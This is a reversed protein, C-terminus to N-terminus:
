ETTVSQAIRDVLGDLDFAEREGECASRQPENYNGCQPARTSFTLVITQDGKPFAYAYQTYVSGAASEVVSTVCYTRDDVMRRATSGGRATESSAESCSFSNDLIQVQPPWDFAETYAASLKAPYRFAIGQASDSFMQWEGSIAPCTAFECKPGTRGVYSGDPCQRAEMTCFVAEERPSLFWIAAGVLLIAIALWATKLSKMGVVSLHM